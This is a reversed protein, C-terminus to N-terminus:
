NPNGSVTITGWGSSFYGELAMVQYYHSSGLRMGAREWAAVHCPFDIVGSIPGGPQKKPNRVSWFQEFTATGDISPQQNRWTSLVDYSAGNCTVTGKRQAASAPNYTGYSEVVYYEILANRTWGYLALYSNGNPMYTGNYSIVRNVIGPNWGKGGVLNGNGSWQISFTGGPGNTYWARGQGDTWWSYFYGDHRGEASPTPNGSTPPPSTPAGTNAPPPPNPNTVPPNPTTVPPQPNSSGPQCQSYWENVVTCTYGSVCSTSGSWGNGGCQGWPGSQATALTALAVAFFSSAKLNM